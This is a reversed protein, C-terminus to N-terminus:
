KNLKLYQENLTTMLTVINTKLMKKLQENEEKLNMIINDQEELLADVSNCSESFMGITDTDSLVEDDHLSSDM